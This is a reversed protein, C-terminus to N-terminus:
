GAVDKARRRRDVTSGCVSGGARLALCLKESLRSLRLRAMCHVLRRAPIWETRICFSYRTVLAIAPRRFLYTARRTSSDMSGM